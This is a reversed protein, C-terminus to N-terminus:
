DAVEDGDQAFMSAYVKDLAGYRAGLALTDNMLAADSASHGYGLVHGLEHMVTTLLDVRQAAALSAGEAFEADDEPTSDVFWGHGAADSDIRITNGAALALTAGKLGAIEVNVGKLLAISEEDLNLEAELRRIAEAVIPALEDRTLSEAAGDALAAGDLTLAASNSLAAAAVASTPIAKVWQSNNAWVYTGKAGTFLIAVDDRGDNDIDGVTLGASNDYSLTRWKKNAATYQFLGKDSSVYIEDKGDGDGDAAALYKADVSQIKTAKSSNHANYCVYLGKKDFDLVADDVLGDGDLDAAVITSAAMTNFRTMKAADNLMRYTGTYAAKKDQFSILLDDKGNGDLDAVYMATPSAVRLWRSTGLNVYQVFVGWQKGLTDKGYDVIIEDVGDGNLDGAALQKAAIGHLLTWTGAGSAANLMYYTGNSFAAVVDDKYGDGDLDAACLVSAAEGHITTYVGLSQNWVSTGGAGTSLVLSNGAPTSTTSSSSSGGSSSSSSTKSGYSLTRTFISSGFFGSPGVWVVAVNGADGVSVAPTVQNGYTTANIRFEGLARSTAPNIYDAGAATYLRANIGYSKALEYDDGYSSWVVIFNGADDCAVDSEWQYSNTTQNVLFEAATRAAGSANYQRAYVGWLNGDQEYSSWTVIFDGDADVAVHAAKQINGTYTNIRFEGGLRAGAASLRQGYVDWNTSTSYSEWVVVFQGNDAVAVDSNINTRSTTSSIQFESGTPEGYADFLRGVINGYLNGSTNYKTWTVIFTGDNAMAVSPTEQVATSILSVRLQASQAQGRNNYCRAYIGEYGDNGTGSWVIVFAGSDNMAVSPSVQSGVTYTNVVFEAGVAEGNVNFRQAIINGYSMADGDSGYRVWVVVYSGDAASAIVPSSDKYLSVTNVVTDTEGEGPEGITDTATGSGLTFTWSFDAGLLNYGTAGLSNGALDTLGAQGTSTSTAGEHHKVLLTYSGASLPQNGTKTTDSDITLVIQYKSTATTALGSQYAQNFGYTVGVVAGRIEKGNLLISYADTNLVSRQWLDECAAIQDASATARTLGMAALQEDVTGVSYLDESVNLIIHSITGDSDTINSQNLILSGNQSQVGTVVPGATDTSEHFTRVWITNGSTGGSTYEDNQTYVIIFTGDNQMAIASYGQLTGSDASTETTVIPAPADEVAGAVVQRSGMAGPYLVIATTINSTDATTWGIAGQNVGRASGQFTVLYTLGDESPMVSIQPDEDEALDEHEAAFSELAAGIAYATAYPDAPDIYINQSVGGNLTLRIWGATPSTFTLRQVEATYEATLESEHLGISVDTDHVSGQFTIEYVVHALAAVDGLEWYTGERAMIEYDSITRISVTGEFKPTPYMDGLKTIAAELQEEIHDMTDGIQLREDVIVPTIAIDEYLSSDYPNYLRLTFSGGTISSSIAIYFTQNSGDRLANVTADTMIVDSQGYNINADIQTYMVGNAEGRLLNMVSTLVSNLRGLINDIESQLYQTTTTVTAGPMHQAASTGNYGRQVTCFYVYTNGGTLYGSASATVDLATVVLMQESDVVITSGVALPRDTQFLISTQDAAIVSAIDIDIIDTSLEATAIRTSVIQSVTVSSAPAHSAATTANYGRTVTCDYYSYGAPAGLTIAQATRNVVSNVMIQEGDITLVQGVAIPTNSQIIINSASGSVAGTNISSLYTTGLITTYVPTGYLTETSLYQLVQSNSAHAVAGAGRAVTCLYATSYGSGSLFSAMDPDTTVNQVAVVYMQESDIMLTMGDTLINNTAILISTTDAAIGSIDDGPLHDEPTTSNFGRVVTCAFVYTNDGTLYSSYTSTVDTASAVYMVEGGVLVTSGAVLQGETQVLLDTMTSDITSTTDVGSVTVTFVPTGTSTSILDVAAAGVNHQVPTTGNQGRSVVCLYYTYGAPAGAGIVMSSYSDNASDIRIDEGDVTIVMGSSLSSGVPTAIILKSAGASILDTVNYGTPIGLFDTYTGLLAATAVYVDANTAHEAATTGNFHREVECLLAYTSGSAALFAAAEPDSSVDTVRNVLMQEGDIQLVAGAALATSDTAILIQTASDSINSTTDVSTLDASYTVTGLLNGLTSDAATVDYVATGLVNGVDSTITAANLQAQAAALVANIEGDIDGTSMYIMSYVSDFDIYNALEPDRALAERFYSAALNADESIDPGYGNYTVTIDGDSDIAVQMGGQYGPWSTPDAPTLTGSNLRFKSLIANGQIDYQIGFVDVAYYTLNEITIVDTNNYAASWVVVLNNADDFALSSYDSGGDPSTTFQVNGEWDRVVVHLTTANQVSNWNSYSIAVYGDNSLAVAPLDNRQADNANVMTEVNVPNGDATFQRLYVNNFFSSYQGEGAWAIVFNGFDDMAVTARGQDNATITNVRFTFEDLMTLGSGTPIAVPAVSQIETDVTGDGDMDVEWLNSTAFTTTTFRRAVIDTTGDANTTTWVVVFEGDADMAVVADFQDTADHGYTYDLDPEEPNVRFTESSQKVIATSCNATVDAGVSTTAGVIQLKDLAKLGNDGNFTIYFHYLGDSKVTVDVTTDATVVIGSPYGTTPAVYETDATKGAFYSEIAAATTAGSTSSVAIKGVVIPVSTIEMSAAPLFGANFFTNEQNIGIYEQAALRNASTVLTGTTPDAAAAFTIDFTTSNIATVTCGTFQSGFNAELQSQLYAAFDQYDSEYYDVTISNSGFDLTVSGSINSAGTNGVPTTSSFSLRQTITSGGYILYFSSTGAALTIEQVNQTLYQAYVNQDSVYVSYGADASRDADYLQDTQTWVVVTDGDADSAVSQTGTSVSDSTTEIQLTLADATISLLAREELPDLMLRRPKLGVTASPSGGTLRGWIREWADGFKRTTPLRFLSM